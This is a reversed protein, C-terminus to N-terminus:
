LKSVKNYMIELIKQTKRGFRDIGSVKLVNYGDSLLVEQNFNGEEDMLIKNDNIEVETVNIAKGVIEILSESSIFGNVPKSIVLEPGTAYRRVEFGTYTIVVLVFIGILTFKVTKKVQNRDM